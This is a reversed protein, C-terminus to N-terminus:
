NVFKMTNRQLVALRIKQWLFKIHLKKEEPTMRKFKKNIRKYTTKPINGMTLEKNKLRERINAIENQRASSTMSAQDSEVLYQHLKTRKNQLPNSTMAANKKADKQMQKLNGEGAGGQYMENEYPFVKGDKANSSPKIGNLESELIQDLKSANDMLDATQNMLSDHTEEHIPKNSSNKGQVPALGSVKDTKSHKIDGRVDFVDISKSVTKTNSSTIQAGDQAVSSSGTALSKSANANKDAPKSGDPAVLKQSSDYQNNRSM